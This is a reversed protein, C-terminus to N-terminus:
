RDEETKGEGRKREVHRQGEEKRERRTETKIRAERNNESRLALLAVHRDFM